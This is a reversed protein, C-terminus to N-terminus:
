IVAMIKLRDCVSVKNATIYVSNTMHAGDDNQVDRIVCVTVSNM